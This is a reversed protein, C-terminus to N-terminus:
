NVGPSGQWVIVLKVEHWMYTLLKIYVKLQKNRENGEQEIFKIRSMNYCM